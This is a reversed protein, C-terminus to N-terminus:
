WALDTWLEKTCDIQLNCTPIFLRGQALLVKEGDPSLYGYLKYAMTPSVGSTEEATFLVTIHTVADYDDLELEIQPDVGEVVIASKYFEFYRYSPDSTAIFEVNSMEVAQPVDVTVCEHVLVKNCYRRKGVQGVESLLTFGVAQASCGPVRITTYPISQEVPDPRSIRM